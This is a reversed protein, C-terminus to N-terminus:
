EPSGDARIRGRAIVLIRECTREVEPLIHSSLLLTREGALGRLLTRTEAIQTPDLGSTPEDLILVEPDHLLAAALGVRQRYGKCLAGIRTRHVDTLWCRGLVRSIAARREPRRMGFLRGRYDLYERVRMERYLP